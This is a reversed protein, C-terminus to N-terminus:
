KEALLLHHSRFHGNDDVFGYAYIVSASELHQVLEEKKSNEANVYNYNAATYLRGRGDWRLYTPTLNLASALDYLQTEGKACHFVIMPVLNKLQLGYLRSVCLAFTFMADRFPKGYHRHDAPRWNAITTTLRLDGALYGFGDSIVRVQTVKAVVSAPRGRRLMLAEKSNCLPPLKVGHPCTDIDEPYPLFLPGERADLDGSALEISLPSFHSMSLAQGRPVFSSGKVLVLRDYYEGYTEPQARYSVVMDFKFRDNWVNRICVAQLRKGGIFADARLVALHGKEWDIEDRDDKEEMLCQVEEM